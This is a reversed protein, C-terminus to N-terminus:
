VRKRWYRPARRQHAVAAVLVGAEGSIDVIDFPFRALIIRRTDAVYPSGHQPFTALRKVAHEVDEIFETGLGASAAEYYGAAALFEERADPLFAAELV